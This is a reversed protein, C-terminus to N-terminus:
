SDIENRQGSILKIFFVYLLVAVFTVFVLWKWLNTPTQQNEGSITKAQKKIEIGFISEDGEIDVTKTIKEGDIEAILTHSGSEVDIFIATGGEDTVNVKEGISTQLGVRIGELPNGKDDTIFVKLTYEKEPEIKNKTPNLPPKTNKPPKVTNSWNGGNGSNNNQNDNDEDPNPCDQTQFTGNPSFSTNSNIDKSIVRYHYIQCPSLNTLQLFHETVRPNIDGEATILGYLESTGYEVQSTAIENTEWSVMHSQSITVDSITPAISDYEEYDLSFSNFLPTYLNEVDSAFTLQYQIYRDTDAVCNNGSIDEDSSLIPNCTSFDPADSLNPDNGTRVRFSISTGAPTSKDYALTLWSSQYGTDFISSELSGTTEYEYQEEGGINTFTNNQNIYEASIWADSRANEEIQIQDLVGNIQETVGPEDGIIPNQNIGMTQGLFPAATSSQLNGDVFLKHTSNYDRVVVIHHWQQDVVDTTGFFCSEKLCFRARDVKGSDDTLGFVLRDGGLYLLIYQDDTSTNISSKYWASFTASGYTHPNMNGVNIYDNVGDFNIGSGIKGTLLQNSAMSGFTTGDRNNNTSDLIQPASGSPDQNMQYVLEYSSWVSTPNQSDNASTNGYYMIINDTSSSADIRPVKVWIIAEQASQNFEEIDYELATSGNEDFFVFIKVM